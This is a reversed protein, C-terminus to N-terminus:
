KIQFYIQYIVFMPLVLWVGFIALALVIWFIMAIGRIIIQVLRIFFSILIGAWDHQGYMPRFINKIWIFLGLSKQKGALFDKLKVALFVLGRTYWWIPFYLIDRLFDALIKGSYFFSNNAIM